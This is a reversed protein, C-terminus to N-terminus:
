PLLRDWLGLLEARVDAELRDGLVIATVADSVSQAIRVREDVPGLNPAMQVGGLWVRFQGNALERMLGGIMAERAARLAEGLGVESAVLESREVARRHRPQRVRAVHLPLDDVPIREVARAFADLRERADAPLRDLADGPASV